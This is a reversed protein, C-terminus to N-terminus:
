KRKCKKGHMPCISDTDIRSGLSFIDMITTEMKTKLGCPFEQEFRM